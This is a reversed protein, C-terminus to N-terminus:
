STKPVVLVVVISALAGDAGRTAVMGAREASSVKANKSWVCVKVFLVRSLVVVKRASVVSLVFFAVKSKLLTEVPVM